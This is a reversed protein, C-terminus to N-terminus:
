KCFPLESQNRYRLMCTLVESSLHDINGGYGGRPGGTGGLRFESKDVKVHLEISEWTMGVILGELGM